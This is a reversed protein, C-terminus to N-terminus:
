RAGGDAPTSGDQEPAPAGSGARSLQVNLAAPDKEDCTVQRLVPQEGEALLGEIRYLGSRLRRKIPAQGAGKGDIFVRASPPESTITLDCGLPLLTFPLELEKQDVASVVLKIPEHGPLELFIKHRGPSVIQSLPTKGVPGDVKSDIYVTAGPPTSTIKFRTQMLNKLDAVLHEVAARKSASTEVQLYREYTRLADEYRRRKVQVQGLLQLAKASPQEVALLIKEAENLDGQRLLTAALKVKKDAPDAARAPAIGLLCGVLVLCLPARM